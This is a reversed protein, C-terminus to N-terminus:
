QIFLINFGTGVCNKKEKYVDMHRDSHGITEWEHMNIACDPQNLRWSEILKKYTAPRSSLLPAASGKVEVSNTKVIATSILPESTFWQVLVSYICELWYTVSVTTSKIATYSLISGKQEARYSAVERRGGIGRQTNVTDPGPAAASSHTGQATALKELAFVGGGAGVGKKMQKM